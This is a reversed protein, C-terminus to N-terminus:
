DDQSTYLNNDPDILYDCDTILKSSIEYTYTQNDVKADFKIAVFNARPTAVDFIFQINQLDSLLTTESELYNNILWGKVTGDRFQSLRINSGEVNTFKLLRLCNNGDGTDLYTVEGSDIQNDNDADDTWIAIDTATNHCIMKSNKFLEKLRLQVFRVRAQHQVTSDLGKNASNIAFSLSAVATLIIACVMLATLLEVLTFGNNRCTKM